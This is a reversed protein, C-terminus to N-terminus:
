HTNLWKNLSATAKFSGRSNLHNFDFFDEPNLGPSLTFVEIGRYSATQRKLLEELGNPYTGNALPLVPAFVRLKYKSIHTLIQHLYHLDSAEVMLPRSYFETFPRYFEEKTMKFTTGPVEIPLSGNREKMWQRNQDYFNFTWIKSQLYRGLVELSYHNLRYKTSAAKIMFLLYSYESSPFAKQTKSSQYFDNLESLSYTNTLIFRKWFDENFHLKANFSNSFIIGKKVRSLDTKLLAMYVDYLSAGSLCISYSDPSLLQAQFAHLPISDGIILYDISAKTRVEDMYDLTAYHRSTTRYFKKQVIGSVINILSLFIALPLIIVWKRKM